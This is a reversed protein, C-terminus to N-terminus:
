GENLSNSCYDVYDSQESSPEYEKIMNDILEFCDDFATDSCGFACQTGERCVKETALEDRLRRIRDIPIAPVTPLDDLLSEVHRITMPQNLLSDDSNEMATRVLDTDILGM